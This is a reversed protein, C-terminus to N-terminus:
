LEIELDHNDGYAGISDWICIDSRWVQYQTAKNGADDTIHVVRFLVRM